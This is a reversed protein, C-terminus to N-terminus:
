KNLNIFPIAGGPVMQVPLSGDWKEVAAAQVELKKMEVILPTITASRLRQSEGEARADLIKADALGQAEAVRKKAEATTRRLENEAQQAQQTAQVKANLAETIAPPFRLTGVWFLQGLEIGVGALEKRVLEEVQKLLQTKGDGYIAEVGYMGAVRNFGDRVMNRMFTDRIEDMGRRYKQFLTPVNPPEVSFTIGIDASVQMGEKTQFTFSEDHKSGEHPSQTWVYNQQFTPFEYWKTFPGNWHYGVGGVEPKVGQDGGTLDVRVGVHGPDVSYFCGGMGFVLLLALFPFIRQWTQRGAEPAILIVSAWILTALLCFVMPVGFETKDASVLAPVVIFLAMTWVAALWIYRWPKM